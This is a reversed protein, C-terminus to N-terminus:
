FELATVRKPSSYSEQEKKLPSFFSRHPGYGTHVSCLLMLLAGLNVANMTGLIFLLHAM